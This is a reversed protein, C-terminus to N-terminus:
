KQISLSRHHHTSAASTGGHRTRRQRRESGWPSDSSLSLAKAKAKAPRMSKLMFFPFTRSQTSSCRRRLHRHAPCMALRVSSLHVRLNRCQTGHVPPRAGPLGAVRHSSPSFAIATRTPFRHSSIACSLSEQALQSSSNAFDGVMECCQFLSSARHILSVLHLQVELPIAVRM